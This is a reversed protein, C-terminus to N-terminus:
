SIEAIGFGAQKKAHLLGAAKKLGLDERTKWNPFDIPADWGNYKYFAANWRKAGM